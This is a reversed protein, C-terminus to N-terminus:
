PRLRLLEAEGILLRRERQLVPVADPERAPLLRNDAPEDGEVVRLHDLLPHDERELRKPGRRVAPLRRPDLLLEDDGRVPALHDGAEGGLLQQDRAPPMVRDAAPERRYALRLRM